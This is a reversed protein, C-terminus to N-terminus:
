RPAQFLSFVVTVIIYSSTGKVLNYNKLADMEASSRM